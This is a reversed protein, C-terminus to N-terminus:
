HSETDIKEKVNMIFVGIYEGKDGLGFWLLSNNSLKRDKKFSRMFPVPNVTDSLAVTGIQNYNVVEYEKENSSFSDPLAYDNTMNLTCTLDSPLDKSSVLENNMYEFIYRFAAQPTTVYEGRVSIFASIDWQSM